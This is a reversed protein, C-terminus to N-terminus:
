HKIRSLQFQFHFEITFRSGSAEAEQDFTVLRQYFESKSTLPCTVSVKVYESHGGEQHRNNADLAATQKQEKRLTARDDNGNQSFFTFRSFEFSTFGLFKLRRRM